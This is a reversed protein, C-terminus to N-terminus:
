QGPAWTPLAADDSGFLSITPSSTNGGSKRALRRRLADMYRDLEVDDDITDDDPRHEAPMSYIGEYWKAWKFLALQM